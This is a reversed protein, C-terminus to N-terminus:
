EALLLALWAAVVPSDGAHLNGSFSRLEQSSEIPRGLYEVHKLSWWRDFLAESIEPTGFTRARMHEDNFIDLTQALYALKAVTCIDKQTWGFGDRYEHSIVQASCSLVLEDKTLHQALEASTGSLPEILFFLTHLM